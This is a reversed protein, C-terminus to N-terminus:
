PGYLNVRGRGGGGTGIESVQDFSWNESAMPLTESFFFFKKQYMKLNYHKPYPNIYRSCKPERDTSFQGRGGGGGGGGCERWWRGVCAIM